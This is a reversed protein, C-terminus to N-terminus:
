AELPIIYNDIHELVDNIKDIIKSITRVGAIVITNRFVLYSTNDELKISVAPLKDPQYSIEKPDRWFEWYVKVLDIMYENGVKFTMVINNSELRINESELIIGENVKVLIPSKTGYLLFEINQVIEYLHPISKIGAVVIKSEKDFVLVRIANYSKSPAILRKAPFNPISKLINPNKINNLLKGSLVINSVQIKYKQDLVVDKGWLVEFIKSKRFRSM